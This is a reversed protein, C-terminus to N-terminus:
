KQGRLINQVSFLKKWDLALCQLALNILCKPNALNQPSYLIFLGFSKDELSLRKISFLELMTM